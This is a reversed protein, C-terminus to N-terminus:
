GSRSAEPGDGTTPHPATPHGLAGHRTPYSGVPVDDDYLIRHAPTDLDDFQGARVAWVFAVAAAAAIVLALPVLLYIVSM